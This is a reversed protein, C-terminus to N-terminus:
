EKDEEKDKLDDMSVIGEKIKRKLEEKNAEWDKVKATYETMQQELKELIPPIDAITIPADLKLTDFLKFTEANHKTPKKSGDEPAKKKAAKAAKGKTPKFYFEEERNEKTLLVVENDKNTHVTEKKDGM